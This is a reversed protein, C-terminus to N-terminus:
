LDIFLIIDIRDDVEAMDPLGGGGEVGVVVEFFYKEQCLFLAGNRNFWLIRLLDKVWVRLTM